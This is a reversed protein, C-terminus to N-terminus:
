REGSRVRRTFLRLGVALALCLGIGALCAAYLSRTDGGNLLARTAVIAVRSDAGQPTGAVARRARGGGSPPAVETLAPAPNESPPPPSLAFGSTEPAGSLGPSSMGDNVPPESDPSAVDPVPSDADTPSAADAPADTSGAAPAPGGGTQEVIGAPAATGEVSASARGLVYTVASGSKDQSTIRLAPATVGSATEAKPLVEVTIGAGQLATNVASTDPAPGATGAVAIGGPTIEVPANGVMAGVVTTDAKRSLLGDQGLVTDAVSLVHGIRLPGVSFASTETRAHATVGEGSSVASSDSRSFGLDGLGEIRVGVNSLAKSTSDTSEARLAYPGDGAEQKPVAPNDSAVYLPYAPAPINGAGRLLGPAAVATDGPYPFSAFARSEGLSNVTAQAAPGGLDVLTKTLTVGPQFLTVRVGDAAALASFTGSFRGEGAAPRISAALPGLVLLAGVAPLGLRRRNIV